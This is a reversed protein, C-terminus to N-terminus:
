FIPSLVNIRHRRVYREEMEEVAGEKAMSITELECYRDTSVLDVIVGLLMM